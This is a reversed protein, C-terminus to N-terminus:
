FWYNKHISFLLLSFLNPSVFVYDLRRATFPSRSSWTFDRIGNNHERWIDILELENIFTKFDSVTDVSHPNGSIIDTENSKVINFDGLIVSDSINFKLINSEISTKLNYLFNHKESNVCPGYVNAVLFKVGFSNIYTILCRCNEWLVSTDDFRISKGFLTLLGKSNSSGEAIHFNPGWERSIIEKDAKTLHTEQLGIIDYNEKKFSYFLARRKKANRLGRVNMSILNLKADTVSAM